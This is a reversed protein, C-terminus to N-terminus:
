KKTAEKKDEKKEGPLNVSEAMKALGLLCLIIIVAGGIIELWIRM